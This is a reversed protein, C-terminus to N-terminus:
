LISYEIFVLFKPINKISLLNDLFFNTISYEYSIEFEM